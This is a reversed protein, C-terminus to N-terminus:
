LICTDSDTCRRSKLREFFGTLEEFVILIRLGVRLSEYFDVHGGMFLLFAYGLLDYFENLFENLFEPKRFAGEGYKKTGKNLSDLIKKRTEYSLNLKSFFENLRDRDVFRDESM